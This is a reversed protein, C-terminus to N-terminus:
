PSGGTEELVGIYPLNRYRGASDLGYGVVFADPITFGVFDLEVPVERRSAKDLLTCIRLSRPHRTLLNRRLYDLTRGTDVIDEVVLVDRGEVSASLDQTLKVIGSSRTSPGYSSVAIFDCEVPGDIARLLDAMFVVAGKLVGVLVPTTQRYRAGVERGLEGVRDALQASTLLVRVGGGTV